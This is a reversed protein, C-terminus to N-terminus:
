EHAYMAHEEHYLLLERVVVTAYAGAPLTFSLSLDKDSWHWTLDPVPLIMSRYARQLGHAELAQCLDQYPALAQTQEHLAEASAREEGRGWLIAAPSVDHAVIRAQLTADPADATFISHSGSLQMVDGTLATQWCGTVLRHNLLHNFLFSRAASYYMGRLFQNKVKIKNFLLDRAKTMNQGGNGFRQEGFYNPVGRAKILALRAEVDEKDSVDRLILEFHNHSLNGTKLKKLHRDHKLVRYGEGELADLGDLTEGPCHIGVWQETKAYKDKIGATSIDRMPKNFRHSLKKMLEQTSLGRKEVFLYIHEGEGSLDYSLVESVIFDDLHAKLLGTATPVGYAYALETEQTM